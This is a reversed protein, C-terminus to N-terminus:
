IQYSIYIPTTAGNKLLAKWAQPCQQQKLYGSGRARYVPFFNQRRPVPSNCFFQKGSVVNWVGTTTEHATHFM